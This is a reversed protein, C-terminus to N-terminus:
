DSHSSTHTAGVLMWGFRTRFASPSGSLGFRRSHLMTSSFINAGLLLDASGPTGFDPDALCINSLHKSKRNFPVPGSLLDMTVKSLVVKEVGLTWGCRSSINLDVMGRLSLQNAFGGIGGVKMCHCGRRVHLHLHQALGKIIFSTSSASDLLARAKERSSDNNLIQVECTTPVVPHHGGLDSHHTVTGPKQNSPSVRETQKRAETDMHLWTHHRKQCKRCKQGCFCQKVIHGLKLCNICHRHEKIIAQM